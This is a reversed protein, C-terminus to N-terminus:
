PAPETPNDPLLITFTSGGGSRRSASVRGHHLEVIRKVIFLGLGVGRVSDSAVSRFFKEFIRDREAETIGVGRDLVEIRVEGDTRALTVEVPGSEPSYKLANDILNSLAVQLLARDVTLVPRASILLDLRNGGVLSQKDALIGELLAALDVTSELLVPAASDLRDDALCVDILETMRSAARRIKALEEEAEPHGHAYLDLLQRAGDIVALPTRFEHSVMALFNRQGRMVERESEIASSLSRNKISLEAHAEALANQIEKLASIEVAVSYKARRGGTWTVMAERLQYWCDDRENFHEFVLNDGDGGGSANLAAIKCFSCPRGLGYIAAHCPDGERADTKQRMARNVGIIRLTEVDVVYVPFPIVDFAVDGVGSDCSLGGPSAEKSM